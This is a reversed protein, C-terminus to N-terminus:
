GGRPRSRPLILQSRSGKEDRQAWLHGGLADALRHAVLMTLGEPSAGFGLRDVDEPHLRRPAAEHPAEVTFVMEEADGEVSLSVQGAASSTGTQEVLHTLLHGLWRGQVRQMELGPSVHVQLADRLDPALSAPLRDLVARLPVPAEGNLTLSERPEALALLDQRLRELRIVSQAQQAPDPSAILARLPAQLGHVAARLLRTQDALADALLTVDHIVVVRLWQGAEDAIPMVDIELVAHVPEDITVSRETFSEATCDGLLYALRQLRYDPSQLKVVQGVLGALDPGLVTALAPNHRLIRQEHDLVLMADTLSDLVLESHRREQSASALLRHQYLAISAETALLAVLRKDQADFAGSSASNLSLTGLRERGIYLPAVLLARLGPDSQLPLFGPERRVDNVLLTELQQLARGAIGSDAPMGVMRGSDTHSVYRPYLRRGTPDLFHIVCKEASPILEAIAKVIHDLLDGLETQASLEQSIELLVRHQKEQQRLRLYVLLVLGLCLGFACLRAAVAWAGGCLALPLQALTLALLLAWLLRYRWPSTLIRVSGVGSEM